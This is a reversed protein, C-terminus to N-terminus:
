HWFRERQRSCDGQRGDSYGVLFGDDLRPDDTRLERRNGKLNFHFLHGGELFPRAAAVFLDGDYQSGLGHGDV